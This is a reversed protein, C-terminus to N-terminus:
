RPPPARWRQHWSPEIRNATTEGCCARLFERVREWSPFRQGALLDGVTSRARGMDEALAEMSREGTRRRLQRLDAAFDGVPDSQDPM